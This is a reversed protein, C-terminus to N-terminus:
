RQPSKSVPISPAGSARRPLAPQATCSGYASLLLAALTLVGYLWTASEPAITLESPFAANLDEGTQAERLETLFSALRHPDSHWHERAILPPTAIWTPGAIHGNPLSPEVDLAQPLSRDDKATAYEELDITGFKLDRAPVNGGRVINATLAFEPSFLTSSTGSAILEHASLQPLGVLAFLILLFGPFRRREMRVVDELGQRRM